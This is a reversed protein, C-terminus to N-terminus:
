EILRHKAFSAKADPRIKVSEFNTLADIAKTAAANDAANM